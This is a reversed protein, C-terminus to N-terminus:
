TTTHRACWHGATMFTGSALAIVRDSYGIGWAAAPRITSHTQM